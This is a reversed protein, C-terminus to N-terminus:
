GKEKFFGEIGHFYKVINAKLLAEQPKEGSAPVPKINEYHPWGEKDVNELEYYGEQSLLRCVALHMLDQKEEKSFQEKLQGLEQMGIIYLIADMGPLKNKGFRDRMEHRVRLWEFDIQWEEM